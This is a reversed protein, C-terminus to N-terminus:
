GRAAKEQLAKVDALRYRRHGGPTKISRLLGERAWRSVTKPSVRFLKAVEQPMLLLQDTDSEVSM